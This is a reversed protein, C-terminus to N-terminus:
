VPVANGKENRLPWEMKSTEKKLLSPNKQFCVTLTSEHDVRRESCLDSWLQLLPPAPWLNTPFFVVAVAVELDWLDSESMRARLDNGWPSCRQMRCQIHLSDCQWFLHQPIISRAQALLVSADYFKHLDGWIASLLFTWFIHSFM